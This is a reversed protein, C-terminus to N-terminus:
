CERVEPAGEPIVHVYVAFADRQVVHTGDHQLNQGRDAVEVGEADNV